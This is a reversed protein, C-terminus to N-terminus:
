VHKDSQYVAIQLPMQVRSKGTHHAFKNQIEKAFPM